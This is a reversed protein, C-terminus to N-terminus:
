KKGRNFNALKDIWDVSYFLLKTINSFNNKGLSHAAGPIHFLEFNPKSKIKKLGGEVLDIFEDGYSYLVPLKIEDLILKLNYNMFDNKFRAFDVFRVNKKTHDIYQEWNNESYELPTDYAILGKIEIPFEMSVYAAVLGGTCTSMIYFDRFGYNDRFDLITKRLLNVSHGPSFEGESKDTGPHTFLYSNFGHLWFFITEAYYKMQSPWGHGSGGSVRIILSKRKIGVCEDHGVNPFFLREDITCM